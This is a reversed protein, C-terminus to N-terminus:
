QKSEKKLNVRFNRYGKRTYAAIESPGVIGASITGGEVLAKEADGILTLMEAKVAEKADTAIKAQATFQAYEQALENLRVNDRAEMVKGPEAYGYLRAITEADRTFDPAPPENAEISKWFADIKARIATGVARDRKRKLIVTRNGGVLAVIWGWEYGIVELQHQLQIEIHAPAETETWERMYVISDVNKIELLMEPPDLSANIAAKFANTDDFTTMAGFEMVSVHRRCAEFDFSSGMRSADHRMYATLPRAVLGNEEAVCTAIVDQLRRGWKMRESDFAEPVEGSKKRHWLEFETAYPSMGFLAASETSTVDQTRLKLWDETTTFQFILPM